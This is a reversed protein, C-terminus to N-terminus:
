MYIHHPDSAATIIYQTIIMKFGQIFDGTVICSGVFLGVILAYVVHINRFLGLVVIVMMPISAVWKKFAQIELSASDMTDGIWFEVEVHTKGGEQAKLTGVFVSSPLIDPNKPLTFYGTYIEEGNLFTRYNLIETENGTTPSLLDTWLLGDVITTVSEDVFLTHVTTNTRSDKLIISTQSSADIAYGGVLAINGTNWLTFSLVCLVARRFGAMQYRVYFPLLFSALHKFQNESSGGINNPHFKLILIIDDNRM